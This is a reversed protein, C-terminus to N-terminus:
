RLSTGGNSTTIFKTYGHSERNASVALLEDIDATSLSYHYINEYTELLSERLNSEIKDPHVVDTLWHVLLPDIVPSVFFPFDPVRYVNRKRVARIMQWIPTSFLDEPILHDLFSQILIVDPDLEAVTEMSFRRGLRSENANSAGALELRENLYHTSSGLTLDNDDSMVILVRLPRSPEAMVKNVKYADLISKARAEQGALVGLLNWLALHSPIYPYPTNFTVVEFQATRELAVTQPAWAFVTDPSLRLVQEVDPVPANGLATIDKGGSFIRYLLGSRMGRLAVDSAGVVSDSNGALTLFAPLINAAFAIRGPARAFSHSRGVMDDIRIANSSARPKATEPPFFAIM